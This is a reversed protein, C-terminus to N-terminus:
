HGRRRSKTVTWSIWPHRVSQRRGLVWWDTQKNNKKKKKKKKKKTKQQQKKKKNTKKNRKKNISNVKKEWKENKKEYELNCGLSVNKLYFRDVM